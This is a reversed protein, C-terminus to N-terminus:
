THAKRRGNLNSLVALELAILGDKTITGGASIHEVRYTGPALENLIQEFKVEKAGTLEVDM